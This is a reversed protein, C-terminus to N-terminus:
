VQRAGGRVSPDALDPVIRDYRDQAGRGVAADVLGPDLRSLALPPLHLLIAPRGARARLFQRCLVDVGRGARPLDRHVCLRASNRFLQVARPPFHCLHPAHILLGAVPFTARSNSDRRGPSLRSGGRWLSPFLWSTDSGPSLRFRKGRPYTSGPRRRSSLRQATSKESHLAVPGCDKNWCRDRPQGRRNKLQTRSPSPASCTTSGAASSTCAPSRGAARGLWNPSRPPSRAGNRRSSGCRQWRELWRRSPPSKPCASCSPPSAASTLRRWTSGCRTTGAPGPLWSTRRATPSSGAM